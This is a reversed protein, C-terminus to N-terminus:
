IVCFQTWSNVEDKYLSEHVQLTVPNVAVM